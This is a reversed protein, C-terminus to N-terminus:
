FGAEDGVFGEAGHAFGHRVDVAGGALRVADDEEAAAAAGAVEFLLGGLEEGFEVGGLGLGGFIVAPM